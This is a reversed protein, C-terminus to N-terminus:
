PTAAWNWTRWDTSNVSTSDWEGSLWVAGTSKTQDAAPDPTAGSYDGWRCPKNVGCSFDVNANTSQQVLVFGSQPSTALKAVMQIAPYTSSSSTDFGVVMNSGFAATTGTDARDPSIAGNWVYLSSDTAKGSQILSAGGPDIEYWREESGAGGFVAHATWVATKGASPDFAAVAHELRGDLTDLVYRTGSQPANAPVSYSSVGVARGGGLVATGDTANKTVPFVTLSSASGGGSVSHSAVVWGTPDADAQVAPVPTFAQSGDPNSLNSFGGLVLSLGSPCTTITGAPPKAAWVVDSGRYFLGGAFVNAGILMFDASDGLKPYDPINGGYGYDLDYHCFDNRSQPNDTTSFGYAFHNTTVDLVVYYFHRSASDWLIQPDSLNDSSPEGTWYTLTGDSILSASRNYLGFRLNILEIYSYPGIAGTADPPTIGTQNEGIWSLSASPAPPPPPATTTTTTTPAATTTTTPAATTTTTPAATTTTPAITTTTPAATTTTPAITTTTPAATTTTPAITTTTPGATTTTSSSTTTTPRPRDKYPGPAHAAAAAKAAQYARDDSVLYGHSTPSGNLSAQSNPLFTATAARGSPSPPPGPQGAASFISGPVNVVVLVMALLAVIPILAARRSM